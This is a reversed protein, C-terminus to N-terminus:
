TGKNNVLNLLRQNAYNYSNQKTKTKEGLSGSDLPTINVSCKNNSYTIFLKESFKRLHNM